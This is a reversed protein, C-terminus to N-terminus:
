RPRRGGARIESRDISMGVPMATAATVISGAIRLDRWRERKGVLRSRLRRVGYGSAIGVGMGRLWGRRVVVVLSVGVGMRVVMRMAHYGNMIILWVAMVVVMIMMVMMVRVMAMAMVVAHPWDRYCPSLRAGLLQSYYLWKMM